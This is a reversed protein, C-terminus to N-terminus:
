APPPKSHPPVRLFLTALFALAALAAVLAFIGNLTGVLAGEMAELLQGALRPGDPALAELDARLSQAAQADVLADPEAQLQEIRQASLLERLGDPVSADLRSAFGRTLVAGLLAMGMMGGLSRFFQLASTAVGVMSHPVSNQVALSLAGAAGGFGIGAIVICIESVLLSTGPGMGSFLFMGGAFLGTHVTVQARYGGNRRSIMQGSVIGGAVMAVLMPILLAGSLTASAGHAAQFYLSLMLVGGHLGLSMLFMALLALCLVRHSYIKLPMIPFSVRAENALFALAMILGFALPLFVQPASWEFQVGGISLSSVVPTVALALLVMGALDLKGPRVSPKPAPYTRATLWLLPLGALGILIFAWNWSILDSLVGGLLPGLLSAVGYVGAIMGQYRGREAPAFLDAISVYCCTMIMGGGIGQIARFAIVQDITASLGTLVSGLIFVAMGAVLFRRRGFADSLSGVIPYAITAAALYSTAAWTYRDFGGLDAVILPLMTAVLTQCLAALFMCLLVCILAAGAQRRPPPVFVDEEIVTSSRPSVAITTSEGGM